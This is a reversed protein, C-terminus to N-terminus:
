TVTVVEPDNEPSCIGAMLNSVMAERLYAYPKEDEVGVWSMKRNRKAAMFTHDAKSVERYTRYAHMALGQVNTKTLPSTLVDVAGADIFRTLRVSDSMVQSGHVSPSPINTPAWDREFGSVVAIPIMLKSLKKFQIESAIHNLLRLGCIDSPDLLSDGTVTRM